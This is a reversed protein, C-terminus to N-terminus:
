IRDLVQRFLQDITWSEWVGEGYATDFILDLKATVDGSLHMVGAHDLEAYSAEKAGLAVRESFETIPIQSVDDYTNPNTVNNHEDRIEGLHALEFLGDDLQEDTLVDGLVFNLEKIGHNSISDITLDAVRAEVGEERVWKGTEENYECWHAGDCADDSEHAIPCPGHMKCDPACTALHSANGTCKTFGMVEGIYLSDIKQPLADIKTDKLLELMTNGEADVVDGLVMEDVKSSLDKIKTDGDCLYNLVKNDGATIVDSVKLNDVEESLDLNGDLVDKLSIDAVMKDVGTVEVGNNKWDEGDKEYKMFDGVYLTGLRDTLVNPNQMLDPLLIDSITQYLVSAEVGDSDRWAGDYYTFGMFEGLCIGELLEEIQVDNFNAFTRDYIKYMVKSTIDTKEIATEGDYWVGATYTCDGYGHVPCKGHDTCGYLCDGTCEGICKTYGLLEGITSEDIIGNVDLKGNMADVFTSNALENFTNGVYEGNENFWTGKHKFCSEYPDVGGHVPCGEVGTCLKYGLASGLLMGDLMTETDIGDQMVDSMSVNALNKLLTKELDPKTSVVGDEYLEGDCDSLNEHVPCFENNSCLEAGLFEGLTMSDFLASSSFEYKKNDQNYVFLESTKIGKFMSLDDCKQQYSADDKSGFSAIVEVFEKEGIESLYGQRIEYGLNRDYGAERTDTLVGMKVNAFLDLGRDEASYIYSGNDLKTEEFTSSLISGVKMSRLVTSLGGTQTDTVFVDGLTYQRLRNRAGESFIPYKGTEENKPIFLFLVGMSTQYLGEAGFLSGLALDKFSDIDRPDAKTADVGLSTLLNNVNLGRKELEAITYSQPDKKMEIILASLEEFTLTSLDGLTSDSVGTDKLSYKKFAWYGGGVIAGAIIILGFVIGFIFALTRRTFNSM